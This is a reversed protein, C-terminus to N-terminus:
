VKLIENELEEVFDSQVVKMIQKLRSFAVFLDIIAASNYHYEGEQEEALEAIRLATEVVPKLTITNPRKAKTKM